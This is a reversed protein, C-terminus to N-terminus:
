TRKASARESLQRDILLMVILFLGLEASVWSGAGTSLVTAFLMPVCVIYIPTDKNKLLNRWAQLFWWAFVTFWVAFGVVGIGLAVELFGNHIGATTGGLQAFVARGGVGFGYGTLPQQWLAHWGATWWGVRGSLSAFQELNQGRRFFEWAAGSFNAVAYGGLPLLLLLLSPRQLFVLVLASVAFAALGTRGEALFPFVCGFGVVMLALFRDSSRRRAQLAFALAVTAITAGFRAIANSTLPVPGGILVRSGGLRLRYTFEDPFALYGFLIVTLLFATFAITVGFLSKLKREADPQAAVAFVVALAVLMEFTKGLSSFRGESWFASALAFGIYILFWGSLRGFWLSHKEGKFWKQINPLVLLLALISLSFRIFHARTLSGSFVEDATLSDISLTSSLVLLWAVELRGMFAPLRSTIHVVQPVFRVAFVAFVAVVALQAHGAVVTYVVAGAAAVILSVDRLAFVM